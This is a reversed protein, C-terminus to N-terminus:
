SPAQSGENKSQTGEQTQQNKETGQNEGKTDQSQGKGSNNKQDQNKLAQEVQQLKKDLDNNDKGQNSGEQPKAQSSQGGGQPHNDAGQQAQHNGEQGPQPQNRGQAHDQQPSQGSGQDQNQQQQKEEEEAQHREQAQQRADQPDDLLVKFVASQAVNPEPFDCNDAAELWYELVMGKHLPEGTRTTVKSLDVFDMYDLHQPYSGDAQQLSKKNQYPQPPLAEQGNLKKQLVLRTIGFDDNAAGRLRLIGNAPLHIDQGPQTLTVRPPSDALVKITYPMPDNNHDGEEATFWIRYTANKELVLHFRLAQPDEPVREAAFDRKDDAIQLHGEKVRRNTHALLTVATGRLGELNPDQTTQDAMYLYPRFHYTVDFSTLLPISRVQVRYEPTEAAGGTIKYWFGNHVQFAPVMATWQSGDGRELPQEQYPEDQRYRYLVKLADANRPDPIKGEVQATFSVAQGVPVTVDGGEPQVLHIVTRTAIPTEVFPTFAHKILSVFQFPGSRLFLVVLALFLAGVIAGLWATRRVSIVQDLDARAIDRAARHSVAGRIASPLKEHRLDLWNVLSNKAGPLAQEVQRAAYYPNIRRGLLRVLFLGLYVLALLSYVAFAAQRALSPLKLWSDLLAMGLAYAFTGILFGLLAATTDLLRIRSRARALHDEVVAEYRAVPTPKGKEVTSM